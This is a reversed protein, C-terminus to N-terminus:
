TVGEADKAGASRRRTRKRDWGGGKLIQCLWKADPAGQSGLREPKVAAEPRQKGRVRNRMVSLVGNVFNSLDRIWPTCFSYDRGLREPITTIDPPINPPLLRFLM